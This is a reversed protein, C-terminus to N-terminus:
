SVTLFSGNYTILGYQPPIPNVIVNSPMVLHDTYLVQTERTPTVVTEGGYSDPYVATFQGVQGDIQETLDLDGGICEKLSISGGIVIKDQM